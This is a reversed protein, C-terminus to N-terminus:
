VGLIGHKQGPADQTVLWNVQAEAEDRKSQANAQVNAREGSQRNEHLLLRFALSPGLAFLM